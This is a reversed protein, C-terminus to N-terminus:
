IIPIPQFSRSPELEVTSFEDIMEKLLFGLLESLVRMASVEVQVPEGAAEDFLESL